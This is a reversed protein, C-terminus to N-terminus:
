KNIIDTKLKSLRNLIENKIDIKIDSSYILNIYKNINDVHINNILKHYIKQKTQEDSINKNYICWPSYLKNENIYINGHFNIIYWFLLINIYDTKYKEKHEKNCDDYWPHSLYFEFDYEILKDNDNINLSLINKIYKSLKWNKIDEENVKILINMDNIFINEYLPSLITNTLYSNVIFPKMYKDINYDNNLSLINKNNNNTSYYITLLQKNVNIRRYWRCEDSIYGCLAILLFKYLNHERCYSVIKSIDFNINNIIYKLFENIQFKCYYNYMSTLLNNLKKNQPLKLPSNHIYVRRKTVEMFCDMHVTTQKRNSIYNIINNIINNDKINMIILKIIKMDPFNYLCYKILEENTIM